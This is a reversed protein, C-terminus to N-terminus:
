FTQATSTRHLCIPRHTFGNDTETRKMMAIVAALLNLTQGWVTDVRIFESLNALQAGQELVIGAQM